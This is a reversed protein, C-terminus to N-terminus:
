MEQLSSLLDTIGPYPSSSVTNNNDYHSLFMQTIKRLTEEERKELPVSRELLKSIGNGVFMNYSELSHTPFGMQTLCFNVSGALDAITNLLTGDLDFIILKKKM